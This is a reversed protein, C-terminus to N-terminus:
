FVLYHEAFPPFFDQMEGVGVKDTLFMKKRVKKKKKKLYFDPRIQGWCFM